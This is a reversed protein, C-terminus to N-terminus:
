LCPAELIHGSEEHAQRKPNIGETFSYSSSDFLVTGDPRWRWSEIKKIAKGTMSCLAIANWWLRFSGVKNVDKSGYAIKNM